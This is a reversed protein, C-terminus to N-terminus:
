SVVRYDGARAVAGRVSSEDVDGVVVLRGTTHDASASQVGSLEEVEERISLECHGCSMGQVTYTRESPAM